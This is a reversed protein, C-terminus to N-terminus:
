ENDKKEKPPPFDYAEAKAYATVVAQKLKELEDIMVQVKDLAAEEDPGFEHLNIQRGCDTMKISIDPTLEKKDEMWDYYGVDVDWTIVSTAQPGLFQRGQAKYIPTSM